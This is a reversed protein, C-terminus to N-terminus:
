FPQHSKPKQAHGTSDRSQDFSAATIWQAKYLKEHVIGACMTAVWHNPRPNEEWCQINTLKLIKGAGIAGYFM